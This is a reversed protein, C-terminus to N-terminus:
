MPIPNSVSYQVGAQAALNCVIDFKRDAFLSELLERSCLDTKIFELNKYKVSKIINDEKIESKNFGLESLRGYKLQQDYYDNINDLATITYNKDKLVRCLHFGIFGAAGTILIKKM